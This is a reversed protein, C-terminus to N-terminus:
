IKIISKLSPYFEVINGSFSCYLFFEPPNDVPPIHAITIGASITNSPTPANTKKKDLLATGEGGCIFFIALLVIPTTADESAM